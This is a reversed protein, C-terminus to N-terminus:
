FVFDKEAMDIAWAFKERQTKNYVKELPVEHKKCWAVTIRPDLYNLKSTGLAIEKNEEKDTATVELKFLQDQLRQAQGKKKEFQKRTKDDCGEKVQVRLAKLEKKAEKIAKKKESIKNQLNTMSQDFSKPVSRQHNCLIAVARNARNYSLVKANVNEDADTLKGLQDQLTMSANYTRFVKATLGEMLESLYKNLSTTSLRDFLDDGGQKGQMFIGLNKFVKKEVPVFNWYRVSDKGLFDFEVVNEKDEWETHLKIHEVRLSCCGVTDATEEDKEHGARLALKDIFYLAVGRQRLRMEKSKWDEQYQNRIRQVCDKLKRATEYKQWDKEGKLRSTPNLMVYKYSGQINEVWCALWSVKNDNIVKQWKHGEPAEPVKADKGINIIIDEPRIRKKLKGMKPHDGRGRFLGPPEIKFNGVRQKHGDMLCYGYEELIKENEQKLEQKQEKTWNKREEAKKVFYAHMEKFNCKTLDKIIKREEATMEKRWDEFFNKNFAPKSTYDHDLMKAYFSAVEEAELSLKVHQGDYYFKVNAPLPEYVPPFYPGKHEMKLWKVGEPLQEEEWWKWVEKEEEKKKKGKEEKDSKADKEEKKVKKKASAGKEGKTATKKVVKKASKALPKSEEEDSNSVDGANKKRKRSVSANAKQGSSGSGSSAIKKKEIPTKPTKNNSALPLDDDDSEVAKKPMKTGEAKKGPKKKKASDVKKDGKKEPKGTKGNKAKDLKGPGPSKAEEKIVSNLASQAPESKGKVASHKAIARAALPIDDDDSETERSAKESQKVPTLVERKIAIGPSNLIKASMSRNLPSTGHVQNLVSNVHPVHLTNLMSQKTPSPSSREGDHPSGLKIKKKDPGSVHSINILRHSM